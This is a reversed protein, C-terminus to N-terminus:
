IVGLILITMLSAGELFEAWSTGSDVYKCPKWWNKGYRSSFTRFLGAVMAVVVMLLFDKSNLLMDHYFDVERVNDTYYDYILIGNTIFLISAAAYVVWRTHHWAMNYWDNWDKYGKLLSVAVAVAMVFQQWTPNLYVTSLVLPWILGATFWAKHDSGDWRRWIATLTILLIAIYIM